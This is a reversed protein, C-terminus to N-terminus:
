MDIKAKTAQAKPTMGVFDNGLDINHLEERCKKFIGAIWHIQFVVFHPSPIMQFQHTRSPLLLFNVTLVIELHQQLESDWWKRRQEQFNRHFFTMADTFSEM